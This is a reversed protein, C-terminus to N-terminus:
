SHIKAFNFELSKSITLLEEDNKDGGIFWPKIRIIKEKEFFLEPIDDIGIINSMDVNMNSAILRLSKKKDQLDEKGYVGIFDNLIGMATLKQITAERNAVSFAVLQFDKKVENIFKEVNPRPSLYYKDFILKGKNEKYNKKFIELFSLPEMNLLTEDVDLVLVKNMM